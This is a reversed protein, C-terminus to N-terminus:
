DAHEFRRQCEICREAGPVAALRGALIGGGCDVCTGPAVPWPAEAPAAATSVRSRPARRRLADSRQMLRAEVREREARTM